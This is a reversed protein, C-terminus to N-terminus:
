EEYTKGEMGEMSEDNETDVTEEVFECEPIKIGRVDIRGIVTDAVLRTKFERLISIEKTLTAIAKKVQDIIENIREVAKVQNEEDSLSILTNGLAAPYIHVIIDGKGHIYRHKLTAQSYLQYLLYEVNIGENPRFVIVDGGAAVVEDGMYLISKGIEDKTEGTGAMVIDSKVIKRSVDYANSDISHTIVSTKYEYQTYIDGYLIAPDGGGEVLNDRSFGGGKFFTGLQKLRVTDVVPYVRLQKEIEAQMLEKLTSIQRQKVGILKNISSVKWDLFRVIQDQEPSPPIPLLISKMESYRTTWLDAVIGRGNRYYEESFPQSRLLYHVYRSNWESRPTLVINILSVSGDLESVGCSGKRDSRSNIVFDGVRVLKRNDGADTKVASDLQPVIGIKAVSLPPYDKDSVKVKRETFLSGIKKCDWYSPIEGLWTLNGHIHNASM